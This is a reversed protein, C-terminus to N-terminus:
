ESDSGLFIRVADSRTKRRRHARRGALEATVDRHCPICLTRLNDLGCGGGGEAVPLVHDAEWFSRRFGVIPRVDRIEVAIEFGQALARAEAVVEPRPRRRRFRRLRERLEQTSRRCLACVGFDRQFVIERAASPSTRIRLTEVCKESCLTRRPARVPGGCERCLPKGSADRRVPRDSGRLPRRTEHSM